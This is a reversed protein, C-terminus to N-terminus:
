DEKTAFAKKCLKDTIQDRKLVALTALAAMTTAAAAALITKKM